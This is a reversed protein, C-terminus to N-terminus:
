KLLNLDHTIPKPSLQVNETMGGATLVGNMMGVPSGPFRYAGKRDTYTVFTRGNAKLVVKQGIQPLHNKGYLVGSLFPNGVPVPAFMFSSFVTDWYVAIQATDGTYGYSPDAIATAASSSTGVTNETSNNQDWTWSDKTSLTLNAILGVTVSATVTIAYSSDAEHKVAQSGDYTVTYTNVTPSDQPTPPPEYPFTTSTEQFRRTDIGTAGNAFPDAKLISAYDDTTFGKSKLTAAVDARMSAPNKLESVLVYIQDLVPGNVGPTYTIKKGAVEITMAPNLCLWIQDYDHDVGDVAPGPVKVENKGTSSIKYETSTLQTTSWENGLSASASNGGGGVSLGATISYDSKFSSSVDVITGLSSGTSYDVYSGSKGGATGPPAYIITMVQYKPFLQGEQLGGSSSCALSANAQLGQLTINMQKLTAAYIAQGDGQYQASNKTLEFANIKAIQDTVLKQAAICNASGLQAVASSVSLLIGILGMLIPFRASM